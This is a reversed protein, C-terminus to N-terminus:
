LRNRIAVALLALWVLAHAAVILRSTWVFGRKARADTKHRLSRRALLGGPWGGLLDAAHLTRESVRREPRGKGGANRVARRKDVAYLSASVVSALAYWGFVILSWHPVVRLTGRRRSLM